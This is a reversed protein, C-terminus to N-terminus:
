RNGSAGNVMQEVLATARRAGVFLALGLYASHRAVSTLEPASRARAERYLMEFNAQIVAEFVARSPARRGATPEYHYGEDLFISFGGVLEELRQVSAPGGAYGEVISACTLTPNQELYQMFARAARWLREPWREVAFFAGATASMAGQFTLEHVATFAAEKDPFQRYFARKDVGAARVIAAVTSAAYGNERVAQATAFIIRLRQNEVLALAHRTGRRRRLPAPARLPAAALLLSRETTSARGDLTRWLEQRADEEYYGVWDLLERELAELGSERRRLRAALMRYVAGVLVEGPLAPTRAHAGIRSYAGELLRAISDISDDRADQARAGAAMTENVLVRAQLPHEEAFRVLASIAAGAATEPPQAAISEAVATLAHQQIEALAALLGAQKDNFHAYFTARSVGAQEIVHAITAHEYGRDCSVRVIAALLRQRSGREERQTPM